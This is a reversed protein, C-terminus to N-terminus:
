GHRDFPRTAGPRARLNAARDGVRQLAREVRVMVIGASVLKIGALPGLARGGSIPWGVWMAVGLGISLLADGRVWGQGDEGTLRRGFILESIGGVMFYLAVLATVQDGARAPVGLEGTALRWAKRRWRGLATGSGLGPAEGPRGQHPAHELDVNEEAAAAAASATDHGDVRTPLPQAIEEVPESEALRRAERRGLIGQERRPWTVEARVLLDAGCV